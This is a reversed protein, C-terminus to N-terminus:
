TPALQIEELDYRPVPVLRYDDEVYPLLGARGYGPIIPFLGGSVVNNYEKYYLQSPTNHHDEETNTQYKKSYRSRDFASFL